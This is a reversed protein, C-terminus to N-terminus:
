AVFTFASSDSNVVVARYVFSKPLCILLGAVAAKDVGCAVHILALPLVVVRLAVSDEDSFRAELSFAPPLVSFEVAFSVFDHGISRSISSIIITVKQDRVEGFVASSYKSIQKTESM